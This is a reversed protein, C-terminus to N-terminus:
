SNIYGHPTLAWSQGLAGIQGLIKTYDNKHPQSHDTGTSRIDYYSQAKTIQDIDGRETGFYHAMLRREEVQSNNTILSIQFSFGAYSITIQEGDIAIVPKPTSSKLAKEIQQSLAKPTTSVGAGLLVISEYPDSM